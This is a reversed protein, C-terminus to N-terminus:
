RLPHKCTKWYDIILRIASVIDEYTYGKQFYGQVTLNTYAETLPTISESTTFFVFPINKMRLVPDGDIQRKFEIGDMRPMNIDSLILFPNAQTTKLYVLGEDGDNLFVIENSIGLDRIAGEIVEQDDLDDEV